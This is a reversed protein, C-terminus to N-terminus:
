TVWRIKHPVVAGPEIHGVGSSQKSWELPQMRLMLERAAANSECRDLPDDMAVAAPNPRFTQYPLAGRKIESQSSGPGSGM